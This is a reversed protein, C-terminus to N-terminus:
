EFTQRINEAGQQLFTQDGGEGISDKKVSVEAGASTKVLVM